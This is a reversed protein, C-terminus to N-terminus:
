KQTIQNPRMSLFIHYAMAKAAQDIGRESREKAIMLMTRIEAKPNLPSFNLQKTQFRFCVPSIGSNNLKMYAPSLLDFAVQLSRNDHRDGMYEYCTTLGLSDLDSALQHGFADIFEWDEKSQTTDMVLTISNGRLEKNALWKKFYFFNQSYLNQTGSVFLVLLLTLYKM